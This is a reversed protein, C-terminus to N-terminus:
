ECFTWNSGAIIGPEWENQNRNLLTEFFFYIYRAQWEKTSDGDITIKTNANSVAWPKNRKLQKDIAELAAPQMFHDSGDETKGSSFSLQGVTIRLDDLFRNSVHLDNSCYLPEFVAKVYQKADNIHSKSSFMTAPQEQQQGSQEQQQKEEQQQQQLRRISTELRHGPIAGLSVPPM